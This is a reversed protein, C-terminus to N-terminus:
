YKDIVEYAETLKVFYDREQKVQRKFLTLMTEYTCVLTLVFFTGFAILFYIPDTVHASDPFIWALLIVFVLSYLLFWSPLSIAATWHLFFRVRIITEENKAELFDSVIVPLFFCANQFNIWRHIRFGDPMIKGYYTKQPFFPKFLHVSTDTVHKLKKSLMNYPLHTAIYLDEYPLLRM